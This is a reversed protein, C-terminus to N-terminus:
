NKAKNGKYMALADKLSITNTTDVEKKFKLEPLASFVLTDNSPGELKSNEIGALLRELPKVVIDTTDIIKKAVPEPMITKCM